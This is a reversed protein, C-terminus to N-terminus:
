VSLRQITLEPNHSRVPLLAPDVAAGGNDPAVGFAGQAHTDLHVDCLPDLRLQRLAAALLLQM